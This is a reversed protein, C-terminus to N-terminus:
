TNAMRLQIMPALTATHVTYSHKTRSQDDRNEERMTHVPPRPHPAPGLLSTRGSVSPWTPVVVPLLIVQGVCVCVRWAYKM